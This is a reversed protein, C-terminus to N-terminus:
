ENRTFGINLTKYITNSGEATESDQTISIINETFTEINFTGELFDGTTPIFNITNNLTNIQYTGESDITLLEEDTTTAGGNPTTTKIERFLGSVEYTGSATIDFSIQFNAGVITSTALDVVAGSSSTATESENGTLSSVEYTGAINANSLLYQPENDTDSCSLITASLFLLLIYKVNKM